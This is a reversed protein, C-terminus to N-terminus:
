GHTKIISFWRYGYGNMTLSFPATLSGSEQYEKDALCETLGAIDAENIDATVKRSCFNALLLLGKNGYDYRVAFIAPNSTKIVQYIGSGIANLGLRARAIKSVRHLLSDDKILSANVNVKQYGYPGTDIVPAIFKEPEAESFGAGALDSWQMPTRVANREELQLDDGMGIEDGYRLVPTGPLSFLVAHAMALRKINGKLMPALRRRLGRQYVHMNKDPGFSKM